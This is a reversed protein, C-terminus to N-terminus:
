AQLLSRIKRLLAASTFPKALVEASQDPGTQQRIDEPAYGSIYLTPVEPYEARIRERLERGNMGPMFLDTVVLHVTGLSKLMALAEVANGSDFVTYGHKQLISKTFRRVQPEDEVLLIRGDGRLEYELVPAGAACEAEEAPAQPFFIRFRAGTGARSDVFIYGDSQKVIGYVTSLGLGTGREAGKTTFFPEFLHALVEESMGTGTDSFTCLVYRGPRVMFRETGASGQEYRVETRIHFIGGEPMADRANAALNLIIQELNVPDAYLRCPEGRLETELRVQAGLLRHLMPQMGRLLDNLDVVRPQSVQRRSFALLQRTLAAARETAGKIQSVDGRRPDSEQMGDIMLECYGNIVMLLNNFDHAIGGAVRGVAEMKQAQLLQQELRKRETIDNGISLMGAPRGDADVVTKNSWAVWLPTGDKRINENENHVFSDPSAKIEEIMGTLDRGTSERDAVITGLIPKGILEEAAYGFLRQGYGNIFTIIGYLDWGLIVSSAGEVLERYQRESDQLRGEALRYPTVDRFRWVRGAIDGGLVLPASYREFIRGDKLGLEDTHEDQSGYLRRIPALYGEVNEVLNEVYRRLALDDGAAVLDPPFDWMRVCRQNSLILRGAGDVVMIGDATAELTARLLEQSEGPNRECSRSDRSGGM